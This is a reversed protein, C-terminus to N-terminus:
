FAGPPLFSEFQCLSVWICVCITKSCFQVFLKCLCTSFSEFVSAPVSFHTGNRSIVLIGKQVIKHLFISSLLLLTHLQLVTSFVTFKFTNSFLLSVQILIKLDLIPTYCLKICKQLSHEERACFWVERFSIVYMCIKKREYVYDVLLWWEQSDYHHSPPLQKTSGL